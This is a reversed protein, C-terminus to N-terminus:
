VSHPNPADMGATADQRELQQDHRIAQALPADISIPEKAAPTAPTALLPTEFCEWEVIDKKYAPIVQEPVDVHGVVKRNCVQDRSAIVRLTIVGFPKKLMFLGSEDGYEKECSGFIRAVHAMEAQTHISFLDFEGANHPLKVDPHAEFWEAIMRLSSAYQSHTMHPM